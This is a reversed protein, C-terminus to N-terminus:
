ARQLDLILAHLRAQLAPATAMAQDVADVMDLFQPHQRIEAGFEWLLIARLIPHRLQQEAEPQSLDAQAVLAKLQRRLVARDHRQLRESGGAHVNASAVGAGGSAVMRELALTRLAELLSGTSRIRDTSM